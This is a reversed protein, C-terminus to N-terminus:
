LPSAECLALLAFAYSALTAGATPLADFASAPSAGLVSAGVAPTFTAPAPGRLALPRALAKKYNRRRYARRVTAIAQERREPSYTYRLGGSDDLVKKQEVLGVRHWLKVVYYRPMTRGDAGRSTPILEEADFRHCAAPTMCVARIGFFGEGPVIDLTLLGDISARLLQLYLVRSCARVNHTPNSGDMPWPLPFDDGVAALFAAQATQAREEWLRMYYRVPRRQAM